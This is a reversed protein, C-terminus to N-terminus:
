RHRAHARAVAGAGLILIIAVLGWRRQERVNRNGDSIKEAKPEPRRMPDRTPDPREPPDAPPTAPPATPATNPPAGPPPPAPPTTTTPPVVPPVRPPVSPQDAPPDSPPTTPPTTPPVTPDPPIPDVIPPTALCSTADISWRARRSTIETVAGSGDLAVRHLVSRGKHNNSTVYLAGDRGMVVAGYGHTAPLEGTGPVRDVRGTGPDIAVVYARGYPFTAVGYLLGDMPNLDFDDVNLAHPPPWLWAERVVRLYKDSKPDIDVWFLLHGVRVVLKEAVVAGAAAHRLVHPHGTSRAVPRGTRDLAVVDGDADVGYVRDQPVSYGVANVRADLTTLVQAQGSPLELRYVTSPGHHDAEVQLAVCALAEIM